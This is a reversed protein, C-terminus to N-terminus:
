LHNLSQHLTRVGMTHYLPMVGLTVEYNRYQNQAIHAIGAAREAGQTRPVGKPKGTTGSTYIAYAPHQPSRLHKYQHAGSEDSQREVDNMLDYRSFIKRTAVGEFKKIWDDSTVLAASDADELCTVIRQVPTNDDFPIWGAGTKAVALQMVM